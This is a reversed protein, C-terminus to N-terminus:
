DLFDRLWEPSVFTRRVAASISLQRMRPTTFVVRGGAGAAVSWGRGLGFDLETVLESGVENESRAYDPIADDDFQFDYVGVRAGTRWALRSALRVSGGWGVFFYRGRFGPVADSRPEFSSQVVGLEASGAHFPFLLRLEVGPDADWNRLEVSRAADHTVGLSVAVTSFAARRPPPSQAGAPSSAAVALVLLAIRRLM